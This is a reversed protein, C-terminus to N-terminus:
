DVQSAVLEPQHRWRWSFRRWSDYECPVRPKLFLGTFIRSSHAFAVTHTADDRSAVIVVPAIGTADGVMSRSAAVAFPSM